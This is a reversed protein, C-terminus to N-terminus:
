ICVPVNSQARDDVLDMWFTWAGMNKGPDSRPDLPQNEPPVASRKAINLHQQLRTVMDPIKNALNNQECPDAAIDFLCPAIRPECATTMNRLEYKKCRVQAQNRLNLVTQVSLPKNRLSTVSKWALSDQLEKLYSDPRPNEDTPIDGLWTDQAPNVTGNIYKFNRFLYSEYPTVPDVNHLVDFRPSPRGQSLTNWQGLGDLRARNPINFGAVQALTPLWDASYILENSVRNNAKLLPSWIM